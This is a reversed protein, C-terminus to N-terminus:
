RRPREAAAWDEDARALMGALEGHLAGNSALVEVGELARDAGAIDTVWGGAERVLVMAAAVDWPKLYLEWFADFRGAAVYALDLSAAGGRRVGQVQLAVKAFNTLNNNELENRRYAFGTAVLSRALNREASVHIARDNLWAGAGREAWYLERLIPAHVVGLHPTIPHHPDFFGSDRPALETRQPDPIGGYGEAVAISVCFMPHGHVFNTTGDLPDLIWVRGSNGDRRIAEEALIGDEPCEAAIRTALFEEVARDAATVMDRRGKFDVQQEGLTGYARKLMEGAERALRIAFTRM